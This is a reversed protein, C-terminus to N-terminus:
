GSLPASLDRLTLTYHGYGDQPDETGSVRVDVSAYTRVNGAYSYSVPYHAKAITPGSKLTDIFNRLYQRDRGYFLQGDLLDFRQQSLDIAVQMGDYIDPERTYATTVGRLIPTILTGASAGQLAIRFRVKRFPPFGSPDLPVIYPFSSAANITTAYTTWSGGDFQYGFFAQCSTPLGPTAANLGTPNEVLLTWWKGIKRLLENGADFEPSYLYFPGQEYARVDPVSGSSAFNYVSAAEDPWDVYEVTGGQTVVYLRSEVYVMGVVIENASSPASGLDSPTTLRARVFPSWGFADNAILVRGQPGLGLAFMHRSTGALLAIAFNANGKPIGFEKNPGTEEVTQRNFVFVSNNSFGFCVYLLDDRPSVFACPRYTDSANPVRWFDTFFDADDYSVIRRTTVIQIQRNNREDKWDVLNVVLETSRLQLDEASASSGPWAVGVGATLQAENAVWYLRALNTLTSRALVYLKNDHEILGEFRTNAPSWGQTYAQGDLSYYISNLWAIVIYQGIRGFGNYPLTTAVPAGGLNPLVFTNTVSDRVYMTAGGAGSNPGWLAFQYRNGLAFPYGLVLKGAWSATGANLAGALANRRPPLTAVGEVTLLDGDQYGSLSEAAVYRRKGLGPRFDSFVGQAIRDDSILSSDGLVTSAQFPELPTTRLTEFEGPRGEAVKPLPLKVTGVQFYDEEDQTGFLVSM